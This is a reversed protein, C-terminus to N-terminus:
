SSLASLVIIMGVWFLQMLLLAASTNWLVSGFFILGASLILNVGFAIGQVLANSKITRNIRNAISLADIISQLSDRSVVGTEIKEEIKYTERENKLKLVKIPFNRINALKRLLADDINPDLTKICVCSSMKKISKLIDHFNPTLEYKLYIKAIIEADSALFMICGSSRMFQEDFDQDISARLGLNEIYEPTGAFLTLENIEYCVGIDSIDKIKISALAKNTDWDVIKSKFEEAAPLDLKTFLACIYYMVDELRNNEYVRVAPSKVSAPPFIDKDAVSLIATESNEEISNAGIFAAGSDQSKKQARFMPYAASIFSCLPVSGLVIFMAATLIQHIERNMIIFIISIIVAATFSIYIYIASKGYNKYRGTREFFNSVFMTKSICGVATDQPIVDRFVEREKPAGNDLRFAYRLRKSSVTKFGAIEFNIDLLNYLLV